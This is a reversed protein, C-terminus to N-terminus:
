FTYEWIGYLEPVPSKCHRFKTTVTVTTSLTWTASASGFNAGGGGSSTTSTYKDINWPTTNFSLFGCGGCCGYREIVSRSTAHASGGDIGIVGVSVSWTVAQDTEKEYDALLYASSGKPCVVSYTATHTVAQKVIQNAAAEAWEIAETIDVDLYGLADVYNPVKNNVFGYLNMGGKEEIPDRSLWRGISPNYYRRGYYLLQTEEDQNKTSFKFPNLKAMSGTARILEGFPGYEYNALITGDAANFLASVNGNGDHAVFCNTTTTGYYSVELLGGVGGAGRLSGSLDTGWLYGRVLSGSTGVEALLNWGDYAFVNTYVSFSGGGSNTSVAKQIRRGQYDYAFALQLQSGTPAGSLSTISILRNEGDWTYNWRGDSLLNGDADYTYSEPTEPVYIHGTNTEGSGVVTVGDWVASSTNTVASQERFYETKRYATVGNVTVANTAIADGMVDVYGPVSRSTIQNLTNNTYYAVRLNAGTQDGGSETQTRNGITDFTYGFQQGAVPTEDSWYKNGSIVQGLADYGYRWYSGDALLALNRQNASNYQYTFANSPSSAILSLRNLFDYQKSTTMVTTGANAFTIQGVLPSFALYSYAASNTGDSVLALRSATDYANTAQCMPTTGNLLVMNTRRLYADFQNSVMLGNLVGGSNSESLMDNALDYVFTTTTAGHMVNTKQGLRNYANTVGPTGDSYFNTGLDGATNYAYTTNTGRAWLRSALRGAGTFTYSVAQNSAGIKCSDTQLKM